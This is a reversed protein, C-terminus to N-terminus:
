GLGPWATNRLWHFCSTRSWIISASWSSIASSVLPCFLFSSSFRRRATDTTYYRAWGPKALHLCCGTSSSSFSTKKLTWVGWFAAKGDMRKERQPYSPHAPDSNGCNMLVDFQFSSCRPTSHLYLSHRCFQKVKTTRPRVSWSKKAKSRKQRKM